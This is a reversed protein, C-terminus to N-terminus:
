ARGCDVRPRGQTGTIGCAKLDPAVRSILALPEGLFGTTGTILAPM